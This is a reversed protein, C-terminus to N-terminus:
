SDTRMTWSSTAMPYRSGLWDTLSRSRSPHTQGSDWLTEDHGLFYSVKDGDTFEVGYTPETIRETM